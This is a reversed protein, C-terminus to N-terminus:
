YPHASYNEMLLATSSSGVSTPFYCHGKLISPFQLDGNTSCHNQAVEIYLAASRAGELKLLKNGDRSCPVFSMVNPIKGNSRISMRLTCGIGVM